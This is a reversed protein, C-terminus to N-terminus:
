SGNKIVNSADTVNSDSVTFKLDIGKAKPDANTGTGDEPKNEVKSETVKLLEIKM